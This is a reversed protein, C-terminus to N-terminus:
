LLALVKELKAKRANIFSGFDSFDISITKDYFHNSMTKEKTSKNMGKFWSVLTSKNKSKNTSSDLLELNVITDYTAGDKAMKEDNPTSFSATSLSAPDFSKKPHIHDVEYTSGSSLSYTSLGNEIAIAYLINLIPFAQQKRIGLITPYDSKAIKLQSINKEIASYDFDNSPSFKNIISRVDKLTNDTSAEFLNNIISHFVFRRMSEYNRKQSNTLLIATSYLKQIYIFYVIPIIALKTTLGKELLKWNSVLDFAKYISKRVEEKNHYITNCVKSSMFSIVNLNLPEDALMVFCKLVWDKDIKYGLGKVDDIIDEVYKRASVTPAITAWNVTMASLLLDGKTLTYGGSNTRVFIDLVDDLTKKGNICYYNIVDNNDFLAVLKTLTKQGWENSSLGMSTVANFMNFAPNYVDKVKCWKEGLKLKSNFQSTTLFQFDYVMDSASCKKDLRIYLASANKAKATKYSGCLGVYISTIRQQGDIVVNYTQTPPCMSNKFIVNPNGVTFDPDLFRYFGIPQAPLNSTEWFMLTNIPYEQLLSDFLKAIDKAGWVFERQLAPLILDNCSLKALLDRISMHQIPYAM